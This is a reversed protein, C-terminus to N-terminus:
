SLLTDWVKREPLTNFSDKAFVEEFEQLYEPIKVQAKLSKQVAVALQYSTTQTAWIFEAETPLKMYFLHDGEKFM